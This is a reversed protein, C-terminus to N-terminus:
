PLKSDFGSLLSWVFCARVERIEQISLTELEFSAFRNAGKRPFKVVMTSEGAVHNSFLGLRYKIRYKGPSPPQFTKIELDTSQTWSEITKSWVCLVDQGKDDLSFIAVTDTISMNPALVGAAVAGEFDFNLIRLTQCKLAILGSILPKALIMCDIMACSEPYVASSVRSISCSWGGEMIPFPEEM